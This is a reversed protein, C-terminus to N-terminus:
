VREFMGFLRHQHEPKIGIGNDEIWLRIKGNRAETWVQLKPTIGFAVFKIGNALLNSIAKTLSSEHALITHLPERITIEARPPQLEPYQEIIDLLLKQLSVPQLKVESRVLRSYTLVDHILREMRSSGLVIRTLYDRGQGDLRDGYDELCAQAYGKMARVPSRLDHSVSYSFEEMQNVAEKLSATREEVRKELSANTRALEERAQHLELENHKRETIDRATKSAGIIHGNAGMVPSVTLSIDILAGDKRRRVTEYHDIRQGERLRALISPEENPSEPPILISVPKGIIEAATYGFLREAGGNWSTIIGNLNKTIVADDSCEIVAALFRQTEQAAMQATIDHTVALQQIIGTRPNRFPAAHTEVFHRTGALDVIQFTLNETHGACVRENMAKFRERDEPAIIDYVNKGIVDSSQRVELMRCGAANVDLLTGDAAVVKICQPSNDIIARLHEQSERLAEGARLREIFDTAQRAHMDAFLIQRATPRHPSPFHVSVVGLARGDRSLLPTTHVARFGANRAEERCAAFLPDTETDEVIVRRRESFATGCAGAGPPVGALRTLETSKFNLSAAPALTGTREDFLSLLGREAGHLEVISELIAQMMSDVDDTAALRSSLNHLRTLGSVQEALARQTEQVEAEAQKQKTIDRTFCQTHVFRGNEWLVCSDILVQKLEGSKTKLRAPYDKLKERNALRRLIDAIVDPDAHFEAIHRGIYEEKSCGLLDLEAQNAWQILGDPGVWHLPTAASEAFHALQQNTHRLVEAEIRNQEADHARKLQTVMWKLRARAAKGKGNDIAPLRESASSAHGIGNAHLILPAEFFPNPYVKQGFIAQPHTHLAAILAEPDLLSRNYQCIIRAPFSPEFLTNLTAEWHELKRTDIDPGLVWTMEVAFRIGKFGQKGAQIIFQRVQRAKQSSDLEGPQRWENRTYLKLRGSESERAVDIGGRKLHSALEDVTQDDAIYIFQEDHTLGERIFPILAPMQEAPDKEYFLCLHGGPKVKSIQEALELTM